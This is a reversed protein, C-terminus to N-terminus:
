LLEADADDEESVYADSELELSGDSEAPELAPLTASVTEAVTSIQEIEPVDSAEAAGLEVMRNIQPIVRSQLSRVAGNHREVAQDLSRGMKQFHDFFTNFRKFLERADDMIKRANVGIEHQRWGHAVARLIAILSAPTAIVISNQIAYEYLDKDHEMVTSLSPDLPVFMVVFELSDSSSDRYEKSSLARIHTRFAQAHAKLSAARSAEDAAESAAFYHEDPAKADVIITRGGPIRVTMDPRMRRNGQDTSETYGSQEEFDCYNTMGALEVIRKLQIEGWRGRTSSGRMASALTQTEKRVNDQLKVLSEIETQLGKYDEGRKQELERLLKDFGELRERFPELNKDIAMQHKSFTGQATEVHREFTEKAVKIFHEQNSTLAAKIMQDLHEDIEDKLATLRELEKAHAQELAKTQEEAGRLEAALGARESELRDSRERLESNEKERDELRARVVSLDEAGVRGRGWIIWGLFIGLLVGVISGVILLTELM